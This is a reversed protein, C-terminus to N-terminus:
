TKDHLLLRELEDTFYTLAQVFEDGSLQKHSLLMISEVIRFEPIMDVYFVM